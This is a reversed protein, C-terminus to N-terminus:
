RIVGSVRTPTVRLIVRGQDKMWQELNPPESWGAAEINKFVARTAEVIGSDLVEATGEVSVFNFPEQNNIVVVTIRPDKRLTKAKVRHSQTSIVLHDGMRAYANMSSSATGDKRLTTVVAWRHEGVFKDFEPTGIM